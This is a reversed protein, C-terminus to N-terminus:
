GSDKETTRQKIKKEKENKEKPDSKEQAAHYSNEINFCFNSVKYRSPMSFELNKRGIFIKTNRNVNVFTPKRVTATEEKKMSIQNVMYLDLLDLSVSSNKSPSLVEVFKKSKLKKKEFYEATPCGREDETRGGEPRRLAQPGRSVRTERPGLRRPAAWSHGLCTKPARVPDAVGAVLDRTVQSFEHPLPTDGKHGSCFRPSAPYKVYLPVLVLHSSYM